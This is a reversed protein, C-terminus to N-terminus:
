TKVRLHYIAIQRQPIHHNKRLICGLANVFLSCFYDSALLICWWSVLFPFQQKSLCVVRVM